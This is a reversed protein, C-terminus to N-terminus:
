PKKFCNNYEITWNLRHLEEIDLIYKKNYLKNAHVGEWGYKDISDKAIIFLRLKKDPSSDIFRKWSQPRSDLISTTDKKIETLFLSTIDIQDYKKGKSIEQKILLKKLDFIEETRSLSCVLESQSKNVITIDYQGTRDCGLVSSLLVLYLFRNM